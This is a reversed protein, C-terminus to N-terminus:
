SLGDFPAQSYSSDQEKYKFIHYIKSWLNRKWWRFWVRWSALLLVILAGAVLTLARYMTATQKELHVQQEAEFGAILLDMQFKDREVMVEKTTEHFVLSEEYAKNAYTRSSLYEKQEFLIKNRLDFVKFTEPSRVLSSYLKEAQSAYINATDLDGYKLHWESLDHLTIFYVEPIDLTQEIKLAKDFYEKANLIEKEKDYTVAINHNALALDEKSANPHDIIYQFYVRAEQFFQNDKNTLGLLNFAMILYKDSQNKHSLAAVEKLTVIAETLNRQRRLAFAKNYLLKLESEKLNWKKATKIGKNYLEIAEDFQHHKRLIAGANLMLSTYVKAEKENKIVRLISASKLYMLLAKPFEKRKRYIYGIIFYSNAVEWKFGAEQSLFLSSDAIVMATELDTDLLEYVKQHLYEIHSQNNAWGSFSSHILIINVILIRKFYM